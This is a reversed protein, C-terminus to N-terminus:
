EIFLLLTLIAQYSIETINHYQSPRDKDILTSDHSEWLMYIKKKVWLM